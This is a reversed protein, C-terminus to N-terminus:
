QSQSNCESGLTGITTHGNRNTVNVYDELLKVILNHGNRAALLLPTRGRKDKSNAEVQGTTLLLKVIDTHGNGAAFSLPTRGYEDKWDAEVQGTALLLKVIAEQGNWAAYVLPTRGVKGDKIDPDVIDLLLKTIDENGEGAAFSLLTRGYQGTPYTLYAKGFVAGYSSRAELLRKDAKEHEKLDDLIAIDNWLGTADSLYEGSEAKSSVLAQRYMMTLNEYGGQYKLRTHSNEWDWVLLFDRLFKTISRSLQPWEFNDSKNLPTAAIVVVAFHDECLRIITPKSAGYVLCIIDHEQIPGVSAQLTWEITSDLEWAANKSIIKVNQEDGRRRVFSVQGIICGKCKIVARQISADVSIDRGFVFKFLQQFLEECSIEYDPLLGAKEPSDSSMGLLAYVKDRTDTAQRTYFMDILEALSGIELSFRETLNATYKSRFGAREILYIISPLTQLELSATYFFELSKVGLCFVYGDITTSGYMIVIHRAAAVEQVVWIRRFWLNQLLHLIAQQKKEKEPHTILKNNAALQIDGLVGKIEVVENGLWVIVRSANSYIKAMLQVQQQREKPNRQDICIADIWLIREFSYDRLHSLAAYLNETVQFQHKDIYIPLTKDPDGWVYSLAEYLHTRQSLRQLSYNRLECHLPAAEDENPLLRLLRINDGNSPLLSFPYSSMDCSTM